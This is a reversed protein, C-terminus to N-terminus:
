FTEYLDDDSYPDVDTESDSSEIEDPITREYEEQAEQCKTYAWEFPDTEWRGEEQREHYYKWSRDYIQQFAITAHYHLKYADEIITDRPPPVPIIEETPKQAMSAYSM